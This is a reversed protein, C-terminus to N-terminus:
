VQTKDLWIQARQRDVFHCTLYVTGSLSGVQRFLRRLAASSTVIAMKNVGGHTLRDHLLTLMDQVERPPVSMETLDALINFGAKPVEKLTSAWDAELNPVDTVAAWYGKIKWQIQNRAADYSLEYYKNELAM